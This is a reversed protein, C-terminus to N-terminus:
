LMVTMFLTVLKKIFLVCLKKFLTGETLTVNQECEYLLKTRSRVVIGDKKKKKKTKTRDNINKNQKTQKNTKKNKQKQKKNTQKNKTGFCVYQGGDSQERLYKIDSM